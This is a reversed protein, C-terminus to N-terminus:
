GPAPGVDVALARDTLRRELACLRERARDAIVHRRLYGIRLPVLGCAQEAWNESLGTRETNNPFVQARLEPDGRELSEELARLKQRLAARETLFWETEASTLPSWQALRQYGAPPDDIAADGLHIAVTFAESGDPRFRNGAQRLATPDDLGFGHGRQDLWDMLAPSAVASTDWGVRILPRGRQVILPGAERLVANVGTRQAVVAGSGEDRGPISALVLAAVSLVVVAHLWISRPEEPEASRTAPRLAADVLAVLVFVAVPWAWRLLSMRVLPLGYVVTSTRSAVLVTVAILLAAFLLGVTTRRDRARWSRLTLLVLAVLVVIAAVVPAWGGLAAPPIPDRRWDGPLFRAPLFFYFTSLAARGVGMVAEQNASGSLATSINPPGPGFFQQVLPILNLIFGVVLAWVVPAWYAWSRREGDAPADDDEDTGASAWLAAAMIVLAVVAAAPAFSLHTQLALSAAAIGAAAWGRGGRVVAWAVCIACWLSLVAFNPNWPDVLVESGMAFQLLAGGLLVLWGAAIGVSRRVAVAAVTVAAANVAAVGLALGHGGLLKVFPALVYFGLPGLHYYPVSSALGGSSSSGVMPPHRSFVSRAMLAWYGDDGSAVWGDALARLGQALIAAALVVLVVLWLRAERRSDLSGATHAATPDVGTAESHAVESAESQPAESM